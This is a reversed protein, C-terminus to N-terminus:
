PRRIHPDIPCAAVTVIGREDSVVILLPISDAREKFAIMYSGYGEYVTRSMDLEVKVWYINGGVQRPMYVRVWGRALLYGYDIADDIVVYIRVYEVYCEKVIVTLGILSEGEWNLFGQPTNITLRLAAYIYSGSANKGWRIYVVRYIEDEPLSDVPIPIPNLPFFVEARIGKEAYALAVTQKWWMEMYRRAFEEIIPEAFERVGFRLAIVTHNQTGLVVDLGVRTVTSLIMALARNFDAAIIIATEEMVPSRARLFLPHLNSISVLLLMIILALVMVTAILIQGRKGGIRSTM